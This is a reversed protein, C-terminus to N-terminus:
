ETRRRTLEEHPRMASRHKFYLCIRWGCYHILVMAMPFGFTALLTHMGFGWRKSSIDIAYYATIILLVIFGLVPFSWTEATRPIRRKQVYRVYVPTAIIITIITIWSLIQDEPIVLSM